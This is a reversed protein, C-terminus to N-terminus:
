FTFITAFESRVNHAERSPIGRLLPLTGTPGAIARTRYLSQEYAFTVFANLKYQLNASFLDSRQRNGNPSFRRVDSARAEDYGYHLYATFGAYRGKPDADFIRSLPFGLNIFGGQSRVPRQDAVVPTGNLLGFAVTSSGDISPATAVGTLGTTDNFTSFLQGAFYFRLDEGSYYKAIVTVYRTPLQAELTYGYRSSEVEVGQPFAAQFAAPVAARTVIAKRAGQMFSAILQAPVVGPARDLQFQTVFRGQVEPRQSDVGQREGFGLQNGTDPPLNGFAPLVIAFEPQFRLNRKTRANFNFGTRIQPAREYLSGYGIGLGTTEILNPLTSSGFPTWDQGALLFGTTRENFTRDLRMWALRLSPQSSRISSINRNNSRTFDGEFDFELRGTLSLRPSPDLWEFNAGIRFARAKIHFEPSTDPGTDGLFLPLPFDNGNPSSTDHM